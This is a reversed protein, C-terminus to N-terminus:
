ILSSIGKIILIFVTIGKIVNPIPFAFFIVFAVLLDVVGYVKCILDGILSPAGKIVMVLAIILKIITPLQLGFFIIVAASLDIFGYIQRIM